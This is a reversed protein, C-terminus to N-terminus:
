YQVEKLKDLVDAKSENSQVGEELESKKPFLPLNYRGLYIDLKQKLKAAIEPNKAVLNMNEKPDIKVDYLEEVQGKFLCAEPLSYIYKYQGDTIAFKTYKSNMFYLYRNEQMPLAVPYFESAFSKGSLYPKEEPIRLLDLLTPLFDINQIARDDFGKKSVRPDKIILPIRIASDYLVERHNFYYNHDFGEGHDSYLVVITKELLGQEELTKLLEGVLRDASAIGGDYLTEILEIRNKPVESEQCSQFEARLEELEKLSKGNIQNCYKTNFKCRLEKAPYYPAHPDTLHIWTFFKKNKNEKMWAGAERVLRASTKVDMHGYKEKDSDEYYYYKYFQYDIKEFGQSLVSESTIFASTEYGHELLRTALSKNNPSLGPDGNTTIRSEFPSRGTMLAAFSPHTMPVVTSANTFVLADKAWTDINSTTDKPYGYIGMHDPRLTDISILVVNLNRSQFHFAVLRGLQIVVIVLIISVLVYMKKM